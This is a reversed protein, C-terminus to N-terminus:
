GFYCHQLYQHDFERIYQLCKEIMGDELQIM